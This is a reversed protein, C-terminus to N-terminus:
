GVEPGEYVSHERSLLSKRLETYPPRRRMRWGKVFSDGGQFTRRQGCM